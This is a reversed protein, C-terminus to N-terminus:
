NNMFEPPIRFEKDGDLIEIYNVQGWHYLMNANAIGAAQKAPFKGFPLEIIRELESDQMGALADALDNASAMVAAAANKPDTIIPGESKKPAAGRLNNAIGHNVSAVEEAQELM